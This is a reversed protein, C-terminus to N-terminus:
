RAGAGPPQSSAGRPVKVKAKPEASGATAVAGRGRAAAVPRVGLHVWQFAYVQLAHASGLRLKDKLRARYTDITGADIGMSAAIEKTGMGRGLGELVQLERDGLDGLDGLPPEAAANCRRRALLRQMVDPSVHMLGALVKRVAELFAPLDCTKRMYGLAGASLAREAYTEDDHGSVVLVRPVTPLAKLDKMLELGHGRTLTLDLIVLDPRAEQVLRLGSKADDARGCVELGLRSRLAQAICDAFLQHDEVLVVRPRKSDPRSTPMLSHARLAESTANLRLSCGGEIM